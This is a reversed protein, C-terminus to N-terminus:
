VAVSDGPQQKRPPKTESPGAPLAQNPLSRSVPTGTARDTTALFLREAELWDSLEDGPGGKRALYAAYALVHLKEIDGASYSRAPTPSATPEVVPDNQNQRAM